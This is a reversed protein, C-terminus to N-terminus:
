TILLELHLQSWVVPWMNLTLYQCVMFKNPNMMYPLQRCPPFNV